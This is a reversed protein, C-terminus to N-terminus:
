REPPALATPKRFVAAYREVPGSSWPVVTELVFGRSQLEAILVPAPIGHGGRNEPVGELRWPMAWLTPPFDIVVLQGGPRLSRFLTADIELPRTFHHYVHRLVVVDCCAPPLAGDTATAQLATVNALHDADSARAIARVADPDIETSYVHGAPGVERALAMTLAGEGAGVEGVEAGAHLDVLRAVPAADAAASACGWPALLAVLALAPGAFTRRGRAPELRQLTRPSSM